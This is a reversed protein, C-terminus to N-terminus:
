KPIEILIKYLINNNYYQIEIPLPKITQLKKEQKIYNYKKECEVLPNSSKPINIIDRSHRHCFRRTLNPFKLM